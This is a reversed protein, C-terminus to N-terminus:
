PVDASPPAPRALEPPALPPSAAGRAAVRKLLGTLMRRIETAREALEAYRSPELVGADRAVLLHYNTEAASGLAIELYRRFEAGSMKGAGEAINAPVSLAARRLQATLALGDRRPFDGSLRYVDIALAHAKEWVKLRHYDQM